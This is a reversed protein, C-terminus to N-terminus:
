KNKKQKRNMKMEFLLFVDVYLKWAIVVVTIVRARQRVWVSRAWVNANSRVRKSRALRFSCRMWDPSMKLLGRMAAAIFEM